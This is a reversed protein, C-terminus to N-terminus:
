GLSRNENPSLLVAKLAEIGDANLEAEIEMKEVGETPIAEDFIITRGAVHFKVETGNIKVREIDPMNIDM